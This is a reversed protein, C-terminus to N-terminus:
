WHQNFRYDDTSDCTTVFAVLPKSVSPPKSFTKLIKRGLLRPVLQVFFNLCGLAFQIQNNSYIVNAFYLSHLLPKRIRRSEGTGYTPSYKRPVSTVAKKQVM